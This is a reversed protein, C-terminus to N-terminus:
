KQYPKTIQLLEVEFLLNSNAPITPPFGKSGYALDFPIILKRKEGVRMGPIGLDWGKIVHNAGIQVSLPDGKEYSSQFPEHVKGDALYGVYHLLIEDGPKVSAGKGPKLTVYTLGTGAKKIENEATPEAINTTLTPGSTPTTRSTEGLAEAGSGITPPPVRPTEMGPPVVPALDPPADCGVFALLGFLVVLGMRPLM